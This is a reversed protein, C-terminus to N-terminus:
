LLATHAPAGELTDRVRDLAHALRERDRTATLSLRLAPAPATAEVAFDRAASVRVGARALAAVASADDWPAALPLWAHFAAPHLCAGLPDLRERVLAHRAALEVRRAELVQAVADNELWRRALEAGLPSSMWISGWIAEAVRAIRAPPAALFAVRLGPSLLKSLGVISFTRDPALAALSPAADEVLGAHVEDQVLLLDHRAAIEAIAERRAGPMPALTPNQLGPMCYLLRPREARCIAELSEPVLGDDDLEVGRVRLGLLRASALFGPYTLSEALVLDGPGAIAALSTLIGHQAGACIAVGSPTAPIGLRALWAAGAERVAVDGLPDRYALAADLAGPRDREEAAMAGLTAALDPGPLAVPTNLSLDIPGREPAVRSLTSREPRRVFTGRGVEGEILGRRRAEGYARTVTGVNVGLESALDRHTPLRDGPRLRGSAVDSELARTIALYVPGAEDLAPSWITM